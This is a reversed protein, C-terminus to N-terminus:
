ADRPKLKGYREALGVEKRTLKVGPATGSFLVDMVNRRSALAQKTENAGMARNVVARDSVRRSVAQMASFVEAGDVPPEDILYVDYWGLYRTRVQQGYPNRHRDAHAYSKAEAEAKRIAEAASRAKFVVVREEVVTASKSFYKDKGMARGDAATRYLTKAGFWNWTASM